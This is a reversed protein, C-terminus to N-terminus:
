FCYKTNKEASKQILLIYIHTSLTQQLPLYATKDAVTLDKLIASEEAPAESHCVTTMEFTTQSFDIVAFFKTYLANVLPKGPCSVILDNKNCIAHM